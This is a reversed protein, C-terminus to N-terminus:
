AHHPHTLCVKMSIFWDDYAGNSQAYGAAWCDLKRPVTFRCDIEPPCTKLNWSIVDVLEAIDDKSHHLEYADKQFVRGGSPSVCLDYRTFTGTRNPELLHAFADKDLLNVHIFGQGWKEVRNGDLLIHLIEPNNTDFQVQSPRCSARFSWIQKFLVLGTRRDWVVLIVPMSNIGLSCILCYIYKECPSFSHTVITYDSYDPIKLGLPNEDSSFSLPPLSSSTQLHIDYISYQWLQTDLLLVYRSSQSFDAIITNAFSTNHIAATLNGVNEYVELTQKNRLCAIRRGCRSWTASSIDIDGCCNPVSSEEGTILDYAAWPTWLIKEDMSFAVYRGSRGFAPGEFAPRHSFGYSKREASINGIVGDNQAWPLPEFGEESISWLAVTIRGAAILVAVVYRGSPSLQTEGLKSMMGPTRPYSIESLAQMSLWHYRVLFTGSAWSTNALVYVYPQRLLFGDGGELPRVKPFSNNPDVLLTTKQLKALRSSNGRIRPKLVDLFHIESPTQNLTGGWEFIVRQLENFWDSVVRCDEEMTAPSMPASLPPLHHMITALNQVGGHILITAEVWTMVQPKELFSRVALYPPYGSQGLHFLWNSAAYDLFPHASRVDSALKIQFRKRSGLLPVEFVEQNVYSLCVQTLISQLDIDSGSTLGFTALPRCIEFMLEGRSSLYEKTSHHALQVLGDDHVEVLPSCTAEVLRRFSVLSRPKKKLSPSSQGPVICRAESLETLTLPRSSYIAWCLVFCGLDRTGKNREFNQAISDLIRDYLESLGQPLSKLAEEVAEDSDRTELEQIMLRAWIFMGCANQELTEVITSKLDVSLDALENSADIRSSIYTQIDKSVDSPFISITQILKSAAHFATRIDPENRSTLLMKFYVESSQEKALQLLRHTFASRELNGDEDREQCEDLGDIVCVVTQERVMSEFLTWLEEFRDAGKTMSDKYAQEVLNALNPHQTQLQFIFSRLIHATVRRNRDRGSCFFYILPVTSEGTPSRLREIIYSALVSKGSGPIGYIWLISSETERVWNNYEEKGLLWSCTNTTQVERLKRLDSSSDWPQLWLKM